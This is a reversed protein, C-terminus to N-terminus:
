LGDNVQKLLRSLWEPIPPPYVSRTKLTMKERDSAKLLTELSLPRNGIM